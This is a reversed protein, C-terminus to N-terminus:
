ISDTLCLWTFVLLAVSGFILYTCVWFEQQELTSLSIWWEHFEIM